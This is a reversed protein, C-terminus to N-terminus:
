RYKWSRVLQQGDPAAVADADFPLDAAPKNWFSEDFTGDSGASVVRYSKGDSQVRYAHGWADTVPLRYIYVPEIAARIEEATGAPYHNYDMKYAEFCIRWSALDSMTWRAREADTPLYPEVASMSAAFSLALFVLILNRM